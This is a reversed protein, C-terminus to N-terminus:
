QSHHHNANYARCHRHSHNNIYSLTKTQRRTASPPDDGEVFQNMRRPKVSHKSDIDLVNALGSKQGRLM